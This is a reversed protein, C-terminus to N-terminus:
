QYVDNLVGAVGESGGPICILDLPPCNAFTNTPVLGLRCDSLVPSMSKAVIHTASQPLGSLVQLPGTFDLQAVDPFIVFGVNFLAMDVGNAYLIRGKGQLAEQLVCIRAAHGYPQALLPRGHRRIARRILAGHEGGVPDGDLLEVASYDRLPKRGPIRCRASAASHHM